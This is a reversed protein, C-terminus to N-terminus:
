RFERWVAGDYRELTRRVRGNRMNERVISWEKGHSPKTSTVDFDRVYVGKALRVDRKICRVTCNRWSKMRYGPGRIYGLGRNADVIKSLVNADFLTKCAM